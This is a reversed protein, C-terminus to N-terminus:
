TATRRSATPSLSQPGRLRGEDDQTLAIPRDGERRDAVDFPQASSTWRGAVELEPPIPAPHLRCENDPFVFLGAFLAQRGERSVVEPRKRWADPSRPDGPVAPERRPNLHPIYAPHSSAPPRKRRALCCLIGIAPVLRSRRSEFGRGGAHCAQEVSVVIPSSQRAIARNMRVRPGEMSIEARNGRNLANAARRSGSFCGDARKGGPRRSRNDGSFSAAASPPCSTERRRTSPSQRPSLMRPASSTTTRASCPPCAPRGTRRGEKPCRLWRAPSYKPSTASAIPTGRVAVTVAM